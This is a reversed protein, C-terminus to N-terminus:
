PAQPGRLHDDRRRESARQLGRIAATTLLCLCLAVVALAAPTWGGPRYGPRGNGPGAVVLGGAGSAVALGIMWALVDDHAIQRSAALATAAAALAAVALYPATGSGVPVVLAIALLVLLCRAVRVAFPADAM